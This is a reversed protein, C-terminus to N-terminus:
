LLATATGLEGESLIWMEDLPPMVPEVLIAFHTHGPRLLGVVARVHRREEDTLVRHVEVDFAYRAWRNSPGLIWDVGLESEGLVLAEGAYSVVRADIGLFFRLANVIGIATGKQRYMQVLSAALRRKAPLELALEFPNGLDALMADVFPEPAREIDVIQPWRDVDALLVDTVEQLCAIFRALDGSTDERRVHRPVMSWLDFRRDPPRHPTFGIFTVHDDPATVPEGAADVIGSVVVEYTVGATMAPTVAVTATRNDASWASAELPVAPATRATFAARAAATVEIAVDFGLRVEIPSVTHATLLRPPM